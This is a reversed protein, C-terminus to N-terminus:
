VSLSLRPLIVSHFVERHEEGKEEPAHDEIAQAQHHTSIRAKRLTKKQPCTNDEKAPRASQKYVTDPVPPAVPMIMDFIILDCM